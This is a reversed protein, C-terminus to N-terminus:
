ASAHLIVTNPISLDGKTEMKDYPFKKYVNYINKDLIYFFHPSALRWRYITNLSYMAYVLRDVTTVCTTMPLDLYVGRKGCM